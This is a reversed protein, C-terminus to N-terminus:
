AKRAEIAADIAADWLMNRHQQIIPVLKEPWPTDRLWRYREADRRLSEIADAAIVPRVVWKEAGEIDHENIADNIHEHASEKWGTAFEPQGDDDLVLWAVPKLDDSM